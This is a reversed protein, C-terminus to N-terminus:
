PRHPSHVARRVGEGMDIDRSMMKKVFNIKRMEWMLSSNFGIENVRDRIEEVTTPIEIQNVPNLQIIMIDSSKTNDILPFLPPNGMYGGDWYAEGRIEVAQFLFPLCASALTADVCVENCKFVKVRSTRVNTACVFLKQQSQQLDEFDVLNELISRLPNLNFPNFQYPSYMLTFVDFMYYAPSFQLSGNGWLRDLMSPQLPSFAQSRSIQKWFKNLLSIAGERGGKHLGYAAVVANMAGASTGCLGEFAITEEELLREMVGWTFAGHSGGGQLALNINKQGSSQLNMNKMKRINRKNIVTQSVIKGM